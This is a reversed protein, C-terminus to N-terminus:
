KGLFEHKAIRYYYGPKDHFLASKWYHLGLKELVKISPKNAVLVRGIIEELGLTNFGYDLCARATETAFGQNWYKKFFRFGIDTEKEEPHYKLGCWGLFNGSNTEIVAWRGYGFKQYQDYEEIFRRAAAESAFPEDGTFLLVEPDNNLEFLAAADDPGLERLICRNTSIVPM